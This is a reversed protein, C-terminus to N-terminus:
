ENESRSDQMQQDLFVPGLPDDDRLISGRLPFEDEDDDREVAPVERVVIAVDKGVWPRLQPLYLTESELHHKIHISQM